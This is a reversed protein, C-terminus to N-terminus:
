DIAKTTSLKKRAVVGLKSIKKFHDKGRKALTANGGDGGTKKGLLRLTEKEKKTLKTM